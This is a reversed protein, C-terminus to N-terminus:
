IKKLDEYDIPLGIYNLFEEKSVVCNIKKYCSNICSSINQIFENYMTKNVFYKISIILATLDNIGQVYNGNKDKKCGILRHEDLPSITLRRHVYNLLVEDHACMNRIDAFLAIMVKAKRAPKHILKKELISDIVISLDSPKLIYILDRIVGMTLCKSLVWFPIYGYTMKYHSVATNKNGFTKIQKRIKKLNEDLHESTPDFNAKKLYQREKIGYKTSLQNSIAAKIKQEIFLLHKLIITKFAKDFSYVAYLHEFDVGDKYLRLGKKYFLKKYATVCYYNNETLLRKARTRQSFLMGKSSLVEILEDVTKYVKEAM